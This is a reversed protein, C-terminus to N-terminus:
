EIHKFIYKSFFIYNWTAIAVMTIIKAVMDILGMQILLWIAINSLLLNVAALVAYLLLQKSVAGNSKFVWNKNLLFSVVFGCLFSMTNAVLVTMSLLAVSTIFIGYEAAAASGGSILFRIVKKSGLKDIYKM